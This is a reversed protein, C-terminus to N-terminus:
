GQEWLQATVLCAALGVLAQHPMHTAASIQGIKSTHHALVQESNQLHTSLFISPDLLVGVNKTEVVLFQWKSLLPSM